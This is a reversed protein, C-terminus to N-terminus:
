NGSGVPKSLLADISKHGNHGWKDVFCGAYCVPTSIFSLVLMLIGYRWGLTLSAVVMPALLWVGHLFRRFSLIKDRKWYLFAGLGWVYGTTVALLAVVPIKWIGGYISLLVLVLLQILAAKFQEAVIYRSFSPLNTSMYEGEAIFLDLIGCDFFASLERM